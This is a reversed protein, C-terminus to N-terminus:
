NEKEIKGSILRSSKAMEENLVIVKCKWIRGLRHVTRIAMELADKVDKLWSKEHNKIVLIFVIEIEKYDINKFGLPIEKKLVMNLYLDLSNEFKEKINNIFHQFVEKPNEVNKSNPNPASTKAELSIIRKRTKDYYVFESISMGQQIKTYQKCTEIRILSSEEFPGFVMESETIYENM